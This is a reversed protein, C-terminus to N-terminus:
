YSSPPAQWRTSIKAQELQAGDLAFAGVVSSPDLLVKGTVGLPGFGAVADTGVNEVFLPFWKGVEGAGYTRVPSSVSARLVDGADWLELTFQLAVGAAYPSVLVGASIPLGRCAVPDWVTNQHAKPFRAGQGTAAPTIKNSFLVPAPGALGATWPVLGTDSSFVVPGVAEFVDPATLQIPVSIASAVALPWLNRRDALVGQLEVELIAGGGRAPNNGMPKAVQSVKVLDAHGDQRSLPGQFWVSRGAHRLGELFGALETLYSEKSLEFLQGDLREQWSYARVRIQHRLKPLRAMQAAAGLKVLTPTSTGPGSLVAKLSLQRSIVGLPFSQASQGPTITGLLNFGFDQAEYRDASWYLDIREGPRLPQCAAEAVTWLKPTDVNLDIASSTLSGSAAFATDSETFVKPAAAGDRQFWVLRGNYATVAQVPNPCLTPPMIDHSVTGEAVNFADVGFGTGAVDDSPGPFHVHRGISVAEPAPFSAGLGGLSHDEPSEWALTVPELTTGNVRTQFILMRTKGGTDTRRALLLVISGGYASHIADVQEGKALTIAAYPAGTGDYAYVKGPGGPDGSALFPATAFLVLAGAEKIDACYENPALTLLTKAAVPAVGETPIEFLAAPPSIGSSAAYLRQKAAHIRILGGQACWVSLATAATVKLVGDNGAAVYCTDDPAVTLDSLFHTSARTKTVFSSLDYLTVAQTPGTTSQSIFWVGNSAAASAPGSASWLLTGPASAAALRRLSLSGPKRTDVQGSSRYASPLSIKPVDYRNQGYGGQFDRMSRWFEGASLKNESIDDSTSTQDIGTKDSSQEYGSAGGPAAAWELLLPVGDLAADYRTGILEPNVISPRQDLEPLWNPV